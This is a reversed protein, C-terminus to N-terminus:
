VARHRQGSGDAGGGQGPYGARLGAGTCGTPWAQADEELLASLVEGDEHDYLLVSGGDAAAALPWQWLLLVAATLGALWRRKKM